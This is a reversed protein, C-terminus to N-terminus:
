AAPRRGAESVVVERLADLGAWEDPSPGDYVLAYPGTYGNDELAAIAARYDAEDLVGGHWHAKAHCTEGYRAVRALEDYKTPGTWNALDVLLGVRGQLPDLVAEVDAASATVDFWNETVVRVGDAGAALRGLRESSVRLADATRTKGAIVRVRDAGLVAADAVWGAVWREAADGEEPHTLDGDDVLLADLRVGAAALAGRVERLHQEDRQPLHFHCLQVSSYGRRQLEGPLALLDLPHESRRLTRDLAWSQVAIRDDPV